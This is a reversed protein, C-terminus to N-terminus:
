DVPGNTSGVSPNAITLCDYATGASNCRCFERSAGGIDVKFDGATCAGATLDAEIGIVALGADAYVKGDVELAAGVLASGTALTHSTAGTTGLYLPGSTSYVRNTGMDLAVNSVNPNAFTFRVGGGGYVWLANTDSWRFGTDPDSASAIAPVTSSASRGAVLIQGDEAQTASAFVGDAAGDAITGVLALMSTVDPVISVVAASATASVGALADIAAALNTACANNSTICQFDAGAVLNTTTMAGNAVTIQMPVTDGAAIAYNTVTITRAGPGGRLMLDGGLLNAGTATPYAGAARIMVTGPLVDSTASPAYIVTPCSTCTLKLNGTLGGTTSFTGAVTLNGRTVGSPSVYGTGYPTGYTFTTTQGLLAALLTLRLM